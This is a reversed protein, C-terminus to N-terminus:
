TVSLAGDNVAVSSASIVIKNGADLTIDATTITIASSGAEGKVDANLTLTAGDKVSIVIEGADDDIQITIAGTKWLKIGGGQGAESPMEDDGWFFGTWVPYDPNGKEFEIWVNTGPEPLAKFGVGAGAYPVCPLAWVSTGAGFVDVVEVKLRGKGLPDQNDVLKGAYKGFYHSKIWEVVRDLDHEPLM